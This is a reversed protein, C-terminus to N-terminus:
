VTLKAEMWSKRARRKVPRSVFQVVKNECYYFTGNM